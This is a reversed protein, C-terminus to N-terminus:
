QITQAVAYLAAGTGNYVWGRAAEYFNMAMNWNDLYAYAEELTSAVEGDKLLEQAIYERQVDTLFPGVTQMGNWQSAEPLRVMRDKWPAPFKTLWQSLPINSPPDVHVESLVERGSGRGAMTEIFCYEVDVTEGGLELETQFLHFDGDTNGEVLEGQEPDLLGAEVHEEFTWGYHGNPPQIDSLYAALQEQTPLLEESRDVYVMLREQLDHKGPYIAFQIEDGFVWFTSNEYSGAPEGLEKTRQAILAEYDIQEPDYDIEVRSLELLLAPNKVNFTYTIREVEPHDSLPQDLYITPQGFDSLKWTDMDLEQAAIAQSSTMDWTTNEYTLQDGNLVYPSFTSINATDELTSSPTESGAGRQAAMVLAAGTGNFQWILDGNEDEPGSSFATVVRWHTLTYEANEATTPFEPSSSVESMALEADIVTQMQEETLFDAVCKDTNWEWGNLDTNQTLGSLWPDSIRELWTGLPVDEPPTVFVQTLIEAGSLVTQSFNYDVPVTEGGLEMTTRFLSYTLDCDERTYHEWKGNDPDLLKQAVHEDFTLGFVGNPPQLSEMYTSFNTTAESQNASSLPSIHPIDTNLNNYPCESKVDTAQAATLAEEFTDYTTGDIEAWWTQMWWDGGPNDMNHLKWIGNEKVLYATLDEEMGGGCNLTYKGDEDLTISNFYTVIEVTAQASNNKMQLHSLKCSLVGSDVLYALNEPETWHERLLYEYQADWPSAGEDGSVGTFIQADSSYYRHLLQNLTSIQVTIEEDTLSATTLEGSPYYGYYTLTDAERAGVIAALMEDEDKASPAAGTMTCAGVIVALAVALVTVWVRPSKFKAIHQIRRKLSHRNGGFTTNLLPGKKTHLLGEEYLSEAYRDPRVLGTELVRQDCAAECDLKAWHFCLWVVPNFWYIAKLIRYIAALRLDRYKYHLLEHVIIPTVDEGHREVPLVIYSHFLGGLMGAGGVVLRVHGKAGCVRKLQLFVRLTDPDSCVPLRKLQIATIIYLLAYVALMIGVGALWIQFLIEASPRKPTTPADPVTPAEPAGPAQIPATLAATETHETIPSIEAETFQPSAPATPAAPAEAADSVAASLPRDPLYNLLSLSSAPVVPLVLRLALLLWLYYKTKASLVRRFVLRVLIILLATLCAGLTIQPLASFWISTIRTFPYCIFDIM